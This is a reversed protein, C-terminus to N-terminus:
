FSCCVSHHLCVTPLDKIKYVPLPYYDQLSDANIFAYKDDSVLYYVGLDLLLVSHHMLVVFYVNKEDSLILSIKGFVLTEWTHEVVVVLGKSYKTGKYTM